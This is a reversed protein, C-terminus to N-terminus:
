RRQKALKLLKEEKRGNRFAYTSELVAVKKDRKNSCYAQFEQTNSWRSKMNVKKVASKVRVTMVTGKMKALVSIAKSERWRIWPIADWRWKRWVELKKHLNTKLDWQSLAALQLRLLKTEQNWQKPLWRWGHHLSSWFKMIRYETEIHSYKGRLSCHCRIPNLVLLFFYFALFMNLTVHEIVNGVENWFM